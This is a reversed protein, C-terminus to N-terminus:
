KLLDQIEKLFISVECEGLTQKLYLGCYNQLLDCQEHIHQREEDTKAAKELDKVYRVFDLLVYIILFSNKASTNM